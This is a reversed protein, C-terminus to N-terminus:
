VSKPANAFLVVKSPEKLEFICTCESTHPHIYCVVTGAPLIVNAGLDFFVGLDAALTHPGMGNNVVTGAMLIANIRSQTYPKFLPLMTKYVVIKKADFTDDIITFTDQNWQFFTFPHLLITTPEVLILKGEKEGLVKAVPEDLTYTLKTGADLQIGIGSPKTPVVIHASLNISCMSCNNCSTNATLNMSAVLSKYLKNYSNFIFRKIM